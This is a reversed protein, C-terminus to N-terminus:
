ENIYVPFARRERIIDREISLLYQKAKIGEMIIKYIEQDNPINPYSYNNSDNLLCYCYESTCLRKKAIKAGPLQYIYNYNSTNIQVTNESFLLTYDKINYLFRKKNFMLIATTNDKSNVTIKPIFGLLCEYILFIYDFTKNYKEPISRLNCPFTSSLTTVNCQIGNTYIVVKKSVNENSYIM